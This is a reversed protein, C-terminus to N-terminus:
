GEPAEAHDILHRRLEDVLSDPDHVGLWIMSLQVVPVPFRGWRGDRVGVQVCDPGAGVRAARSAPHYGVLGEWHVIPAPPPEVSLIDRYPIRLDVALGARVVLADVGLEVYAGGVMAKRLIWFLALGGALVLFTTVLPQLSPQELGFADSLVFTGITMVIVGVVLVVAWSAIASTNYEPIVQWRRGVGHQAMLNPLSDGAGRSGAELMVAASAERIGPQTPM